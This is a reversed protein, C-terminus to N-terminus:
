MLLSVVPHFLIKSVTIFFDVTTILYYRGNLYSQIVVTPLSPCLHSVDIYLNGSWYVVYRTFTYTDKTFFIKLLYTRSVKYLEIGDVNNRLYWCVM